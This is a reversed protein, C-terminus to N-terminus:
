RVMLLAQAHNSLTRFDASDRIPDLDTDNAMLKLDAFGNRVALSLLRFSERRYKGDSDNRSLQANLGAMQFFRYATPEDRLVDAADRRAREADGLRALYVGRGARAEVYHPYLELLRDMTVVAEKLRNLHDALVVAKHILADRSRPDLKLAQEFDALADAPNSEMRWHGRTVWSTADTPSLKFGESADRNSGKQDGAAKRIKARFFLLRTPADPEALAATLDAEAGALDKRGERCVARNILAATWGPKLSLAQTFDGEADVFRKQQLRAWGRAFYSWQFDPRLATCVTFAASAEIFQGVEEHCIGRVYWAMFHNSHRDAFPILKTLAQGHEGRVASELAEHYADFETEPGETLAAAAGPLVALLEARQRALWRPRDNELLCQEALLNWNLAARTATPDEPSGRLTEARALLLLVDGFERRLESQQDKSLLSFAPQEAWNADRGIGYRALAAQGQICGQDLLSRDGTQTSLLIQASRAEELATGHNVVAEARVGDAQQQKLRENRVVLMAAPLGILTATLLTAAAVAALRPNRRRWKQAREVPSTNPAFKLPRDALHRELDERLEAASAYRCAPDPALLRRVIADIAPTILPNFRSPVEPQQRRIGALEAPLDRPRVPPLGHPDQGTLLEFLIVGLSYLDSRADIVPQGGAISELHEPAMYPVTGGYCSEQRAGARTDMAVNFDLLMPQGDDAILINQPKLDCHLIGREHAHALGDALRAVIWLVAEVHSLRNLLELNPSLPAAAPTAPTTPMVTDRDRITTRAPFSRNRLTEVLERGSTPRNRNHRLLTALTHSGVYPMCVVQFQYHHHVSYIPVINAHQLRALRQPEGDTYETIKLAVLRDALDRQSALFVRSFAGSGLEGVLQFHLLTDGVSPFLPRPM